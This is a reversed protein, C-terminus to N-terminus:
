ERDVVDRGRRRDIEAEEVVVNGAIRLDPIEKGLAVVRDVRAYALLGVFLGEGEDRLPGVGDRKIRQRDIVGSGGVEDELGIRVLRRPEPLHRPFSPEAAVASIRATCSRSFTPM